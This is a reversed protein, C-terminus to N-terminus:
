RFFLYSVGVTLAVNHTWVNQAQSLKLVRTGDTANVGFYSNPYSLQYLYDAVDARLQYRGGPVWRVGAGYSLAFTTGFKFGGVDRSGHMDSAVGLAANVVPILRHFTKQGTLNMALGVDMLYLPWSQEPLRRTAAPKTPDITVRDSSVRAFRTVFTAPGGLRVEYRAGLMLGDQPAVGAPDRGANYHGALLSLEQRYEVDRYPSSTPPYGIQAAARQAPAAVAGAALVVLVWVRCSLQVRVGKMLKM